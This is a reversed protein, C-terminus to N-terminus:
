RISGPSMPPAVPTLLITVRANAPNGPNSPFLPATDGRGRIDRFRSYPVGSEMLVKRVSHARDSSLEFNDYDVRGTQRRSSTHGTIEIPNPLASLAPALLELVRRTREYPFKSGDPFMARSDQDILSIALGENTIEVTINRSIAQIEPMDQWAQRLSAAATAFSREMASINRGTENGARQDAGAMPPASAQGQGVAQDGPSMTHGVDRLYQRQPTGGLEVIGARRSESSVGMADRVSGLMAQLKNNDITSFAAVVVFFAMLLGMLDAFTVFWGHGGHAHKKKRAM